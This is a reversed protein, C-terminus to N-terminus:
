LLDLLCQEGKQILNILSCHYSVAIVYKFFINCVTVVTVCAFIPPLCCDNM